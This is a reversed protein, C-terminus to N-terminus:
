GVVSGREEEERGIWKLIVNRHLGLEKLELNRHNFNNACKNDRENKRFTRGIM